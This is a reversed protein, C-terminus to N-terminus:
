GARLRQMWIIFFVLCFKPSSYFEVFIEFIFSFIASLWSRSGVACFHHKGNFIEEIFTVVDM